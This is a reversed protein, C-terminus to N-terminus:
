VDANTSGGHTRPLLDICRSVGYASGVGIYAAARYVGVLQANVPLEDNAGPHAGQLRPGIDLSVRRCRRHRCRCKPRYRNGYRHSKGPQSPVAQPQAASLPRVSASTSAKTWRGKIQVGGGSHDHSGTQGLTIAVGEAPERALTTIALYSVTSPQCHSISESVVSQAANFLIGASM